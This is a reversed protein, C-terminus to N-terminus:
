SWTSACSRPTLSQRSRTSSTALYVATTMVCRSEASRIPGETSAIASKPTSASTTTARCRSRACADNLTLRRESASAGRSPTSFTSSRSRCTRRLSSRRRAFMWCSKPRSGNMRRRLAEQWNVEGLKKFQREYILSLRERADARDWTRAHETLFFTELGETKANFTGFCALRGAHGEREDVISVVCLTEHKLGKLASADLGDAGRQFGELAEAVLRAVADEAIDLHALQRSKFAPIALLERHTLNAEILLTHHPRTPTKPWYRVEDPIHRAVADTSRIVTARPIGQGDGFGAQLLPTVFRTDEAVESDPADDAFDFGEIHSTDEKTESPKSRPGEGLIHRIFDDKNLM